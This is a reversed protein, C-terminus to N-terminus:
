GELGAGGQTCLRAITDQEYGDVESHLAGRSMSEKGRREKLGRCKIASGRVGVGEHLCALDQSYNHLLLIMPRFLCVTCGTYWDNM